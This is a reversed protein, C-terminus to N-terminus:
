KKKTLMIVLVLALAGGGILLYKNMNNSAQPQTAPQNKNTFQSVIGAGTNLIDTLSDLSFGSGKPTSVTQIQNSQTPTVDLSFGSSDYNVGQSAVTSPVEGLPKFLGKEAFHKAALTSYM